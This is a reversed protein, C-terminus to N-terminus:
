LLFALGAALWDVALFLAYYFLTQKLNSIAYEGPHEWRELAAAILTWVFLLDMMPSILPFLIQFVWVNPMAIFGLTGFRPKLLADRHKWMCQLTGFSWRFRQKALAVEHKALAFSDAMQITRQRQTCDDGQRDPM